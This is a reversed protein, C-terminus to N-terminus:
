TGTREEGRWGGLRWLNRSSGVNRLRENDDECWMQHMFCGNCYIEHSLQAILAIYIETEM